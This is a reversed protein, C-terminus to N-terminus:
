SSTGSLNKDKREDLESQDQLTRHLLALLGSMKGSFTTSMIPERKEADPLSILPNEHVLPLSCVWLTPQSAALGSEVWILVEAGVVLDRCIPRESDRRGAAQHCSTRNEKSFLHNGALHRAM